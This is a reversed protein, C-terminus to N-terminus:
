DSNTGVVFSTGDTLDVAGPATASVTVVYHTTLVPPSADNDLVTVIDGIKMGLAGGNTIYGSADVTSAGDTSTYYWIAPSQGGIGGVRQCVPPASTSYTM